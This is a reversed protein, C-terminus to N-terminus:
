SSFTVKLARFVSTFSRTSMENNTLGSAEVFLTKYYILAIFPDLYEVLRSVENYVFVALIANSIKSGNKLHIKIYDIIVLMLM